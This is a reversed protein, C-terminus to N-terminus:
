WISYSLTIGIKTPLIKYSLFGDKTETGNKLLLNSGDEFSERHHSFVLGVGAHADISLRNTLSFVYGFTLGGGWATGSYNKNGWAMNYSAALLGVGVFHHYLPRGGFYYRYEPQVGVMRMEKHFYPKNNGFVSLGLTSRNGITMEAGINYTQLALMAVDTNISFTQAQSTHCFLGLVMVLFIRIRKMKM